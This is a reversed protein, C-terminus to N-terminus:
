WIKKPLSKKGKFFEIDAQIDLCGSGGPELFEDPQCFGYFVADIDGFLYVAFGKTSPVFPAAWIGGNDIDIFGPKTGAFLLSDLGLPGPKPKGGPLPSEM